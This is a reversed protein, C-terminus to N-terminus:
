HDGGGFTWFARDIRGRDFQVADGFWTIRSRVRGTLPHIYGASRVVAENADDWGVATCLDLYVLDWHRTAFNYLEVQTWIAPDSAINDVEVGSEWQFSITEFDNGPASAELVVSITPVAVEENQSLNFKLYRNDSSVLQTFVGVTTTGNYEVQSPFVQSWGWGALGLLGAATGLFRSTM